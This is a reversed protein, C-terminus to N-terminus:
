RWLKPVRIFLYIISIALLALGVAVVAIDGYTITRAVMVESGSSLNFRYEYGPTPTVTPTLTVTATSSPYEADPHCIEIGDVDENEAMFIGEIDSNIIHTYGTGLDYYSAVTSYYFGSETGPDWSGNVRLRFYHDAYNHHTYVDDHTQPYPGVFILHYNPGLFERTVDYYFCTYGSPDDQMSAAHIGQAQAPPVGLSMAVLVVLILLAIPLARKMVVLYCIHEPYILCM